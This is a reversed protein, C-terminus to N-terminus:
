AKGASHSTVTNDNTTHSMVRPMALDLALPVSGLTASGHLVLSYQVENTSVTQQQGNNSNTSAGVDMDNNTLDRSVTVEFFSLLGVAKQPVGDSM